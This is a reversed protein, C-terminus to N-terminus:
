ALVGVAVTDNTAEDILIFAGNEKDNKYSDYLLEQAVTITVDAIDNLSLSQADQTAELSEPHIVSGLADIRAHVRRVGHQLLYRSRLKASRENLWCVRAEVTRSMTPLEHNRVILDGRSLDIDKELRLSVMEGAHATEVENGFVDIGTVTTAIHTPLSTVKDGVRITGSAIKGAYGRYDHYAPLKSRLIHQVQFRFPRSENDSPIDITELLELLPEGAYWPMHPSVTTVNDGLTASLPIFVLKNSPFGLRVAFSTLADVTERYKKEAYGVLDM